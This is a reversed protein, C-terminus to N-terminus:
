YPRVLRYFGAAGAISNTVSSAGTTGTVTQWNPATLSTSKQLKTNLEGTWSIIVNSSSRVISNIKLSPLSYLGVDDVGWYWSNAGAHAFRLRVKPQNDALPMALIEVRKSGVPDDDVRRSIYPALGSWRNSTVGIFAGYYGG